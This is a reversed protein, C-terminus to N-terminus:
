IELINHLFRQQRDVELTMGPVLGPWEPRPDSGDDAMLKDICSAPAPKTDLHRNIIKRVNEGCRDRIGLAGDPADFPVQILELV